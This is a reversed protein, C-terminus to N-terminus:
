RRMSRPGAVRTVTPLCCNPVNTRSLPPGHGFRDVGPRPQLLEEPSAAVIGVAHLHDVVLQDGATVAALHRADPHLVRALSAAEDDPLVRRGPLRDDVGVAG